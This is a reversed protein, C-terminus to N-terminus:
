SFPLLDPEIYHSKAKQSQFIDFSYHSGLLEKFNSKLQPFEKIFEQFNDSNSKQMFHSVARVAAITLTMNYKKTQGLAEVFHLIQNCIVNCADEVGHSNIQIWALRLHAEHSFLSPNLTCNEFQREFEHDSLELHKEM